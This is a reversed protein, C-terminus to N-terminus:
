RALLVATARAMPSDRSCTLLLLALVVHEIKDEDV